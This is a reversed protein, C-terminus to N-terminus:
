RVTPAGASGTAERMVEKVQPRRARSVRVRRSTEHPLMRRYDEGRDRRKGNAQEGRHGRKRQVTLRLRARAEGGNRSLLAAPVDRARVVHRAVPRLRQRLQRAVLLPRPAGAFGAERFGGIADEENLHALQRLQRPRGDRRNRLDTRAERERDALPWEAVCSLALVRAWGSAARAAGIGVIGRLRVLSTGADARAPLVQNEDEIAVTVDDLLPRLPVLHQAAR